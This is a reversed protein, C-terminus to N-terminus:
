SAQVKRKSFLPNFSASLTPQDCHKIILSHTQASGVRGRATHSKRPGQAHLMCFAGTQCFCSVEQVRHVAQVIDRNILFRLFSLFFALLQSLSLAATIIQNCDVDNMTVFLRREPFILTTPPSASSQAAGIQRNVKLHM